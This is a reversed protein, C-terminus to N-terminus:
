LSFRYMLETYITYIFIYVQQFLSMLLVMIFLIIVMAFVTFIMAILTKPITYQHVTKIGSIMLVVSWLIGFYQFFIIIIIRDIGINRFFFLVSLHFKELFM